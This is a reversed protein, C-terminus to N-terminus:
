KGRKFRSGKYKSDPHVGAEQRNLGLKVQRLVAKGLREKNEHADQVLVVHEDESLTASSDNTQASWPRVLVDKKNESLIISCSKATNKKAEKPLTTDGAPYFEVEDDEDNEENNEDADAESKRKGSDKEEAEEEEEPDKKEKSENNEMPEDGDAKDDGKGEEPKTDEGKDKKDDEGHGNEKGEAKDDSDKADSKSEEGKEEGQEKKPEETGDAKSAEAPTAAPAAEGSPKQPAQKVDDPISSLTLQDAPITSTLAFWLGNGIQTPSAGPPFRIGVPGGGASTFTIMFDQVTGTITEHMYFSVTNDGEEGSSAPPDAKVVGDELPSAKIENLKSLLQEGKQKQSIKAKKKRSPM